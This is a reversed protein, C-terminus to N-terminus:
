RRGLDDLAVEQRADIDEADVHAMRREVHHAAQVRRDPARFGLVTARDADEGVELARFEADALKAAVPDLQRGALGVNEVGLLLVAVVLAHEQRVRLDELADFDPWVSSSSSPLIRIRTTSALFDRIAASTITPPGSALRLPMEIGSVSSGILGSVSLSM